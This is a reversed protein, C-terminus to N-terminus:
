FEVFGSVSIKPPISVLMHIYDPCEEAEIIYNKSTKLQKKQKVQKKVNKPGSVKM